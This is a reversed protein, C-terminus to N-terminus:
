TPRKSRWSPQDCWFGSRRASSRSSAAISRQFRVVQGRTFFVGRPQSGPQDEGIFRAKQQDGGDALGPRGTSLRRPQMMAIPAVPERDVRGDSDTRHTLAQPQEPAHLGAVDLSGVCGVEQPVHEVVQAAVDDHDPVVARDVLARVQRPEAAGKWSEVQLRERGIRRLEIGVLTDPTQGFARQGIPPRVIQGRESCVEM